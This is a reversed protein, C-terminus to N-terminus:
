INGSFVGLFIRNEAVGSPLLARDVQAKYITINCVKYVNPVRTKSLSFITPFKSRTSGSYFKNGQHYLHRQGLMGYVTIGINKIFYYVLFKLQFSIGFDCNEAKAMQWSATNLSSWFCLKEHLYMIHINKYSVSATIKQKNRWGGRGVGVQPVASCALLDRTRNGITDNSKKM